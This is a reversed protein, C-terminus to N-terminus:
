GPPRERRRRVASRPHSERSPERRRPARPLPRLPRSPHDRSPRERHTRVVVPPFETLSHLHQPSRPPLPSRASAVSLQACDRISPISASLGDFRSNTFCDRAGSTKRAVVMVQEFRCEDKTRGLGRSSDARGANVRLLAQAHPPTMPSPADRRVARAFTADPTTRRDRARPYPRALTPNAARSGDRTRVGASDDSSRPTVRALIMHHQQPAGGFAVPSPFVSASRKMTRARRSPDRRDM